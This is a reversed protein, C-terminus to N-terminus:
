RFGVTVEPYSRCKRNFIFENYCCKQLTDSLKTILDLDKEYVPKERIQYSPLKTCNSAIHFQVSTYM